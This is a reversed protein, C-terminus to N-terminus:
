GGVTGGRIAFARHSDTRPNEVAVLGGAAIGAVSDDGQAFGDRVAAVDEEVGISEPDAGIENGILRAPELEVLGRADIQRVLGPAQQNRIRLPFLFGLM